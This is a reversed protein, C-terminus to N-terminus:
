RDVARWRLVVLLQCSAVYLVRYYKVKHDFQGVNVSIM